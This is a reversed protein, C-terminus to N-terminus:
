FHSNFIYIGKKEKELLVNHCYITQMYRKLYHEEEAPNSYFPSNLWSDVIEFATECDTANASLALFNSNNHKRSSVADEKNLCRAAIVGPYKTAPYQIGIGSGCIGIGVHTQINLVLLEGIKKSFVPYDTRKSDYSGVDIVKHNKEKLKGLLFKKIEFGRHDAGIVIKRGIHTGTPINVGARQITKM